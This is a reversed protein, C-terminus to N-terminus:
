KWTGNTTVGTGGGICACRQRNGFYTDGKGYGVLVCACADDNGGATGGGGAVCYCKGGGAVADGEEVFVEGEAEAPDTELDADTLAFGKEAALRVIAKRDMSGITKLLEEDAEGSLKELFKAMNETM